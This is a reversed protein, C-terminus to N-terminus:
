GNWILPAHLLAGDNRSRNHAAGRYDDGILRRGGKIRGDLVLDQPQEVVQLRCDVGRKNEDRM